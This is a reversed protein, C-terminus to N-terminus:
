QILYWKYTSSGSDYITRLIASKKATLTISTVGDMTESLAATNVTISGTGINKINLTKNTSFDDVSPLTHTWVSPSAPSSVVTTEDTIVLSNNSNFVVNEKYFLSTLVWNGDYLYFEAIENNFIKFDTSGNVPNSITIKKSNSGLVNAVRLLMGNPESPLDITRGGVIMSNTDFVLFSDTSLVTYTTTGNSMSKPALSTPGALEASQAYIKGSFNSTDGVTLSM